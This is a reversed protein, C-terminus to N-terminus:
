MKSDAYVDTFFLAMNKSVEIFRLLKYYKTRDSIDEYRVRGNPMDYYQVENPIDNFIM